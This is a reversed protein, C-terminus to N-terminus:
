GEPLEVIAPFPVSDESKSVSKFYRLRMLFREIFPCTKGYEEPVEFFVFWGEEAAYLYYLKKNELTFRVPEPGCFGTVWDAPIIIDEKTYRVTLTAEGDAYVGEYHGIANAPLM